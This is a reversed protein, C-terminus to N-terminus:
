RRRLLDIVLGTALVGGVTGLTIPLWDGVQTSNATVGTAIICTGSAIALSVRRAAKRITDELRETGSFQVQLKPGPRTGALREVAEALRTLRVKLKQADYLARQPDARDRLRGAFSRFLYSGAVAFPDLTPDLEATALQMQALAKGTLALSAPVRVDYRAAIETVGQLIPGLEIERLSANRFRAVLAGLEEQLQPLDLDSRQEGGGLMLLVDTLFPVDERWFAMLLLVLQERMEPAVEGVMGFDLFYIKENWWKMNGPHPDAHFFGVTLIQRYYSELLQRAAEKREPGEPAERVPVGQIEELVLLRSSSLESYVRPVDLRSYAELVQRMREVNTAEQRFDLERRLSDSLHSIVAPVDVVHRFAPRHATKEAFLELLGLDRYIDTAATPRQVKVVVRDGSELTARHVQGITGAAMPQPDISEFVDEWPIGLEEEMVSVVEVETMPTVREQLTALEEVFEPPILDPRTSLIQGLKAFTPGLEELAARARRAREQTTMGDDSRSFLDRLGHKALVRGIEAARGLLQGEVNPGPRAQESV